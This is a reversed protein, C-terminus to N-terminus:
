LFRRIYIEAGFKVCASIQCAGTSHRYFDYAVAALHIFVTFALRPDQACYRVGLTAQISWLIVTGTLRYHRLQARGTANGKGATGQKIDEDKKEMARAAQIMGLRSGADQRQFTVRPRLRIGQRGAHLRTIGRPTVGTVIERRDSHVLCPM